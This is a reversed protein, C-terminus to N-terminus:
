YLMSSTSDVVPGGEGQQLSPDGPPGQALLQGFAEVDVVGLQAPCVQSWFNCNIVILKAEFNM